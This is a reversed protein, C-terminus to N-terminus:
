ETQMQAEESEPKVRYWTAYIVPLVLLTLVTASFLGGAIAVAMPGWFVSSSLPIMALVAAAATLMIPRFRLVTANIIANWLTQGSDIQRDIQDILIVINRMIIGALALLGLQVVFGFPKGTMLLAVSVGIIGLPATLLTLIMHSINQLQFMLLTMIILVMIPVPELLWKTAKISWELPGGIEISYGPPLDKRLHELKNYVNQTADLGLVGPVTNAQVTITPKLHRRWIMGEEAAYSIRAIQDLPIFRGNGIHVNLDKIRSLDTRNDTDVRFVIHITKDKERFETVPAGSLLSQLSLALSRRDLGLARAKDQDIALRMTKSKENWDFNVNWLNKDAIMVDRVQAAIERVKNHDYGTFRLMVPYPEPPGLQILKINALVNPFKAALVQHAKREVANRSEFNKAVIIFSAFNTNPLTPEHTLVFRPAGQGIYYSYHDVNKDGDFYRAFRRAETETAQLSSGEPLRIDVGVEPRESAPFFDNKVLGMILIASIFSIVTATIVWWRHILCWYLIKKFWRYFSTDYIDPNHGGHTGAHGPKVRILSYGLLPTVTGAVLWSILLAITVVSFLSICLEAVSGKSFGVPIFGACTVLAGTLRPYATATYAFCAADFRDWGQELKVLMMEIAIIADDVLLGLAIILAGLSVKHLDIGFVKMCIFVGAIVLPICLAVISGTRLGLSFFCVILVIVISETLVRMFENISAKVIRPQDSITNIEMGLPLGKKIGEITQTLNKGLTLINGGKEM